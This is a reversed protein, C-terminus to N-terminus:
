RVIIKGGMKPNVHNHYAWEGVEDFTYLYKQGFSVAKLQDFKPLIFHAPHGNSAVWMMDNSKNLFEVTEGKKIEFEFPFFGNDTYTITVDASVDADLSNKDNEKLFFFIIFILFLFALGLIIKKNM